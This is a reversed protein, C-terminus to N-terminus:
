VKSEYTECGKGEILQDLQRVYSEMSFRQASKGAEECIREYEERSSEKYLKEVTQAFAQPDEKPVLYGDKGNQILEEIAGSRACICLKRAAMAEVITIGFGEEWVPLHVFVDAEMLRKPVDNCLGAFCVKEKIRLQEAQKELEKRYPGDGVIQFSWPIEKPIKSLGQLTVQVGKEAILRGVYIFRIEDDWRRVASQQFKDLVIGNYIITIKDKPTGLVKQLSNSVSRSIAAVHDARQLVWTVFWRKKKTRKASITGDAHVSTSVIMDEANCHAYAITKIQPHCKKLLFAMMHLLMSEHHIVIRQVKEEKCLSNLRRFVSILQKSNARLEIVKIGNEKMEEAIPGGSRLCVVINRNHSRSTYDRCLIEIGGVNASTLFHLVTM